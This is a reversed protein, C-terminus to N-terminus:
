APTKHALMLKLSQDDTKEIPLFIMTEFTEKTSEWMFKKMLDADVM